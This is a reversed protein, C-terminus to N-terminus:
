RGVVTDSVHKLVQHLDSVVADPQIHQHAPKPPLGHRNMWIAQLGVQQAGQVDLVLDDGVYVVQQPPLGLAECASIFIRPDPKACGFQHAALSIKFFKALGIAQLDAFGNSISGLMVQQGLQHLAPEVDAFISVRNRAESFVAMAPDALAVDAGVEDLVQTLLAHRLAWLDYQFRSDSGVLASRRERMAEISYRSAVEPVHLTLWNHLTQEAHQIVPAVPWLTDDLDFLVAKIPENVKKAKDDPM